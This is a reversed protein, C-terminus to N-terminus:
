KGGGREVVARGEIGDGCRRRKKVGLGFGEGRGGNGAWGRRRKEAEAEEDDGGTEGTKESVKGIEKGLKSKQIPKPSIDNFQLVTQQARSRKPDAFRDDRPIHIDSITTGRVKEGAFGSIQRNGLVDADM